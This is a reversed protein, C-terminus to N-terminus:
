ASDPLREWTVRSTEPDIVMFSRPRARYLAGPNLFRVGDIVEDRIQHSHGHVVWRCGRRLLDGVVAPLHGHTFGVDLGGLELVLSWGHLAHDRHSGIAAALAAPKTDCNGLLWDARVGALLHVVEPSVIDGCHVVHEIGADRIRAVAADVSALADHSDSIV